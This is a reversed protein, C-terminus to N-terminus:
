SLGKHRRVNIAKWELLPQKQIRQQLDPDNTLLTSDIEGKELLLDLFALENETLPLVASLGKRCEEVLHNGQELSEKQLGMTNIRLMPVLQRTLEAPDFNVDKVSVTRWDKRNM